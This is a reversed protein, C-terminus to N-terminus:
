VDNETNINITECNEKQERLIDLEGIGLVLMEDSDVYKQKKRNSTNNADIHIKTEKLM